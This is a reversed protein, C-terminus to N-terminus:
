SYTLSARNDWINDFESNGDAFTSGTFRNSVDYSMKKILWVPSSTASGPLAYGLYEVNSSADYAARQTLITHASLSVDAHNNDTGLGSRIKRVTLMSM